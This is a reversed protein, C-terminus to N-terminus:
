EIVVGPPYIEETFYDVDPACPVVRSLPRPGWEHDQRYVPTDPHVKLLEAVLEGVTM